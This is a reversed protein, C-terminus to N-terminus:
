LSWKRLLPKRAIQWRNRTRSSLAGVVSAATEAAGASACAIAADDLSCGAETFGTGGATFAKAPADFEM